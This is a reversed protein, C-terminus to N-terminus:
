QNEGKQHSLYDDIIKHCLPEMIERIENFHTKVIEYFALSNEPFRIGTKADLQKSFETIKPGVLESYLEEDDVTAVVDNKLHDPSVFARLTYPVSVLWIGHGNTSRLPIPYFEIGRYSLICDKNM